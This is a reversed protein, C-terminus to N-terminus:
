DSARGSLAKLVIGIVVDIVVYATKMVPWIVPMLWAFLVIPLLVELIVYFMGLGLCIDRLSSDDETPVCNNGLPDADYSLWGLTSTAVPRLWDVPYVYRILPCVAGSAVERSLSLFVSSVSDYKMCEIPLEVFFLHAETPDIIPDYFTPASVDGGLASIITIILQMATILAFITVSIENIFITAIIINSAMFSCLITLVFDRVIIGGLGIGLTWLIPEILVPTNIIATIAGGIDNAVALAIRRGSSMSLDLGSSTGPM